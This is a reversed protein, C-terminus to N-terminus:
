HLVDDEGSGALIRERDRQHLARKVLQALRSVLRDKESAVAVREGRAQVELLERREVLDAHRREKVRQLLEHLREVLMRCGDDRVHVTM